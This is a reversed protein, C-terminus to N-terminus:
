AWPMSVPAKVHRRAEDETAASREYAAMAAELADLQTRRQGIVQQLSAVYVDM